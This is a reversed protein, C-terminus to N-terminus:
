IGSKLNEIEEDSLGTLEQIEQNTKNQELLHKVVAQLAKVRGEERGEDKAEILNKWEENFKEMDSSFSTERLIQLAQIIGTEDIYMKELEKPFKGNQTHKLFHIWKECSSAPMQRKFQKLDIFLFNFKSELGLEHLRTCISYKHNEENEEAKNIEALTPVFPKGYLTEAVVILIVRPVTFLKADTPAIGYEKKM